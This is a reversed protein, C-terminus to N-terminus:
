CSASTCGAEFPVTGVCIAPDVAFVYGVVFPYKNSKPKNTNILVHNPCQFEIRHSFFGRSQGFPAAHKQRINLSKRSLGINLQRLQDADFNRTKHISSRIPQKFLTTLKSVGFHIPFIGRSANVLSLEQTVLNSRRKPPSKEGPKFM